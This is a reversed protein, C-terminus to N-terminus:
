ELKFQFENPGEKTVKATLDSTEATAYKSPVENKTEIKGSAAAAMAAGYNASPEDVNGTMAENIQSKTVTVKYEGITAGDFNEYTTLRFKGQADTTGSAFRPAADNRFVVEAGALPKGQFLVTGSVPSMEPRSPGGCGALVLSVSVLTLAVVIKTGSAWM